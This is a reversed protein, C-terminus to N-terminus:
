SSWSCMHHVPFVNMNMFYFLLLFVFCFWCLSGCWYLLASLDCLWISLHLFFSRVFDWKNMILNRPLTPISPFRKMHKWILVVVAFVGYSANCKITHFRFILVVLKWMTSFTKSVAILCFSVFNVWFSTMYQFGSYLSFCCM